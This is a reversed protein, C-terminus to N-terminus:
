EDDDEDEDYEQASSAKTSSEGIEGTAIHHIRGRAVAEEIEAPTPIHWGAEQAVQLRWPLPMSGRLDTLENLPDEVEKWHKVVDTDSRVYAPFPPAGVPDRWKKNSDWVEIIGNEAGPVHGIVALMNLEPVVRFVVLNHTTRYKGGMRGPMKKGKIVRAPDTAGTGTSGIQRHSKSAGHSANGGKFGHRKMVGQFGKGKTKARVNVCQGPVFHQALIEAGVPPFADPTVRFEKLFRKPPVGNKSFMGLQPKRVHKDKANRFGIVAANYGNKAETKHDVVQVDELQLYTLAYRRSWESWDTSMGVKRALVGTRISSRTWGTEEDAVHEKPPPKWFWQKPIYGFDGSQGKPM